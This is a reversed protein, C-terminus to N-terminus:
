QEFFLLAFSKLARCRPAHLIKISQATSPYSRKQLASAAPSQQNYFLFWEMENFCDLAEQGSTKSLFMYM